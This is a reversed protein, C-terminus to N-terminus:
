PVVCTLNFPVNQQHRVFVGLDPASVIVRVLDTTAPPPFLQCRTDSVGTMHDSTCTCIPPEDFGVLGVDCSGDANRITPGTWEGGYESVVSCSGTGLSIRAALTQTPRPSVPGTGLQGDANVVVPQAGAGVDTGSIGAVYTSTHDGATGIRITGNDGTVGRNGIDINNSDSGFLNNGANVGLAINADGSSVGDLATIGIATNDNGSSNSALAGAGM